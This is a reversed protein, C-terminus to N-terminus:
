NDPWLLVPEGAGTPRSLSEYPFDSDEDLGDWDLTLAWDTQAVMQEFLAGFRKLQEDALSHLTFKREGDALIELQVIKDDANKPTLFHAFEATSVNPQLLNIEPYCSM